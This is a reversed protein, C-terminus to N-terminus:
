PWVTHGMSKHSMKTASWMCGVKSDDFFRLWIEFNVSSVETVIGYLQELQCTVSTYSIDIVDCDFFIGSLSHNDKLKVITTLNAKELETGVHTIRTMIFGEGTFTLTVGGSTSFSPPSLSSADAWPRLEIRQTYPTWM